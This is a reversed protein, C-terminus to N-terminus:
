QLRSAIDGTDVPASGVVCLQGGFHFLPPLDGFTGFDLQPPVEGPQLDLYTLNTAEVGGGLFRPVIRISPM